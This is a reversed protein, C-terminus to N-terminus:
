EFPVELLPIGEVAAVEARQARVDLEDVDFRVPVDFECSVEVDHTDTVPSLFSIIGTLLDITYDVSETQAVSNVLVTQSGSVIKTLVRDYTGGADTYRKYIQFDTEAGDGTGIVQQALEYDTWDKFRFSHGRGRRSYFFQRVTIFATDSIGYGITWRHRARAWNVNRKEHPSTTPVVTTNFQPGGVAGREVDVPLRVDHFAM